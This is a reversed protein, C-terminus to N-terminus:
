SLRPKSNLLANRDDPPVFHDIFGAKLRTLDRMVELSFGERGGRDDMILGDLMRLFDDPYGFSLALRNILNPYEMELAEVAIGKTALDALMKTGFPNLGEAEVRRRQQEAAAKKRRQVSFDLRAAEEAMRKADLHKFSITSGDDQWKAPSPQELGDMTAILHELKQNEEEDVSDIYGWAYLKILSLDDVGMSAISELMEAGDRRGDALKLLARLRLDLGIQNDSLEVRGRATQRFVVSRVRQLEASAGGGFLKILSELIGM